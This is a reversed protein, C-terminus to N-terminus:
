ESGEPTEDEDGIGREALRPAAGAGERGGPPVHSLREPGAPIPREAEAECAAGESDIGTRSGEVGGPGQAPPTGGRQM